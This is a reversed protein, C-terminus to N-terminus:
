KLELSFEAIFVHADEPGGALLLESLSEHVDDVDLGLSHRLLGDPRLGDEVGVVHPPLLDHSRLPLGSSSQDIFDVDFAVVVAVVQDNQLDVIVLAV